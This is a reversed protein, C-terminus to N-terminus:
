KLLREANLYLIKEKDSDSIPAKEIKLLEFGMGHDGLPFDSGFLIRDASLTNVAQAIRRPHTSYSTEVYVNELKPILIFIDKYEILHGIIINLDNFDKALKAIFQIEGYEGWGSHVLVPLNHQQAVEITPYCLSHAVVYGHCLPHLKLGRCGKEILEELFAPSEELRPDLYAFPILRKNNGIIELIEENAERQKTSLMPVSFVVSEAIGNKDMSQLLYESTATYKTLAKEGSEDYFAARATGLHTHFDVIGQM